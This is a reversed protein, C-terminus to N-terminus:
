NLRRYVRANARASRAHGASLGAIAAGDSAPRRVSPHGSRDRFFRSITIHCSEDVASWEQPDSELRERYASFEEIGLSVM